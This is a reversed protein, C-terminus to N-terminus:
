ADETDFDGSNNEDEEPLDYIMGGDTEDADPDPRDAKAPKKGLDLKKYLYLAVGGIGALLLVVLLLTLSAGSSSTEEEEDDEDTEDNEEAETVTVAVTTEAEQAEEYEAVDEDEMLALLDAEDVLNLFHVTEEGEDDRDIILYFYNGSKTVLTIYQKGAETSSGYDDVLTLNGDPTLAESTEETEEAEREPEAEEQTQAFMEILAAITEADLNISIGSSTSGDEDVRLYDSYVFGTVDDYTIEYWNGDEGLVEVTEGSLLQDIIDYETGAGERVNLPSVKTVVTGTGTDDADSTVGTLIQELLATIVDEESEAAGDVGSKEIDTDIDSADSDSADEADGGSEENESDDDPSIVAEEASAETEDASGITVGEADIDAEDVDSELVGTLASESVTIEAEEATEGAGTEGSAMATLPNMGMFFVAAALLPTWMMKKKM